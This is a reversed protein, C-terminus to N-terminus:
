GIRRERHNVRPVNRPGDIHRSKISYHALLMPNGETYYKMLGMLPNECASSM